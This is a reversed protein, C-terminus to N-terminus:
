VPISPQFFACGDISIAIDFSVALNGVFWRVFVRCLLAFFSRRKLRSKRLNIPVCYFYIINHLIYVFQILYKDKLKACCPITSTHKICVENELSYKCGKYCEIQDLIWVCLHFNYDVYFLIECHMQKLTICNLWLLLRLFHTSTCMEKPESYCRANAHSRRQWQTFAFKADHCLLLCVHLIIFHSSTNQKTFITLTCLDLINTPKWALYFFLDTLLSLSSSNTGCVLPLANMTTARFAYSACM